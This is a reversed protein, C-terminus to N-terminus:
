LHAEVMRVLAQLKRLDVQVSGQFDKGPVTECFQLGYALDLKEAILWFFPRLEASPMLEIVKTGPECFVLNALGAGHAGIIFEASQFLLIQDAFSMGELYVTEFDYRSLFERVQKLNHITRTPGRRAILLRRTQPTRVGEYLAAIRQQFDKLYTAPMTEVM